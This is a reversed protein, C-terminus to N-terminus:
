LPVDSRRVHRVGGRLAGVPNQPEVIKERQHSRNPGEAKPQNIISSISAKIVVQEITKPTGMNYYLMGGFGIRIIILAGTNHPTM